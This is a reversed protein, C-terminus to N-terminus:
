TWVKEHTNVKNSHKPESANTISAARIEKTVRMQFITEGPRSSALVVEGDHEEAICYALTLGLGTGKQKGESVFPDFLSDRVNEPVGPGNDVVRVVIHEKQAELTITVNADTGNMRAAQCANLLLNYLAREIQKGDVQAATQSPEGYRVIFTVGDADPHARIL